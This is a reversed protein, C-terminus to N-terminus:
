NVIGERRVQYEGGKLFLQRAHRDFWLTPKVGSEEGFQHKWEDIDPDKVHAKRQKYDIRRVEGLEVLGSHQIVSNFLNLGESIDQDGGVFYLQRASTDSVLLPRPVTFRIERVQGGILPKVYLSLLEGLQAYEGGPMGEVNHVTYGDAPVGTFDQRIAEASPNRRKPKWNHRLRSTPRM